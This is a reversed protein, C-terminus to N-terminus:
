WEPIPPIAPGKYKHAMRVTQARVEAAKEVTIGAAEAMEEDTAGQEWVNLALDLDHYTIGMEDEDTQGEWLGATPPKDIIEQPVGIIKAIERVQTKYLYHMPTADEAGDGFKTMYGMFLESRNTTGFVLRNYKKAKDYLVVMRCRAMINGKELPAEKGTLLMGSFADVAPQVNVTVYKIGWMDCMMKTQRYDDAPTVATPMFVCMVKDGGLADACLKAVVASDIGGSIGIIAGDVHAKAATERIFSRISEADEETVKHLEKFAM